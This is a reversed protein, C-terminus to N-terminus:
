DFDMKKNFVRWKEKKVEQELLSLENNVIDEPYYFYMPMSKPGQGRGLCEYFGELDIFRALSQARKYKNLFTELQRYGYKKFVFYHASTFDLFMTGKGRNFLKKDEFMGLQGLFKAVGVLLPFQFPLM